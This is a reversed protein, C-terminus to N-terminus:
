TLASRVEGLDYKTWMIQMYPAISLSVPGRGKFVIGLSFSSGWADDKFVTEEAPLEFEVKNRIYCYDLSAAFRVPGIYQVIGGYFSGMSFSLKNQYPVAAHRGA